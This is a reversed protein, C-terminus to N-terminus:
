SALVHCIDTKCLVCCVVTEGDTAGADNLSLALCTSANLTIVSLLDRWVSSNPPARLPLVKRITRDIM